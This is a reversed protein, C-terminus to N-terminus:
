AKPAKKARPKAPKKAAPKEAATIAAPTKKVRVSKAKVAPKVPKEELAGATPFPWTSGDSVVEVKAKNDPHAAWAADSLAHHGVCYGTPSRGCGCKVPGKIAEAVAPAEVKYPAAADLTTDKQAPHGKRNLLFDILAKLM